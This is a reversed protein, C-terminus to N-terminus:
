KEKHANKPNYRILRTAVPRASSLRKELMIRVGIDTATSATRSNTVLGSNVPLVASILPSLNVRLDGGSNTSSIVFFFKSVNQLKPYAYRQSVKKMYDLGRSECM